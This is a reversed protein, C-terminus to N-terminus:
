LPPLVLALRPPWVSARPRPSPPWQACHEDVLMVMKESRALVAGLASIGQAQKAANEAHRYIEMDRAHVRDHMHAMHDRFAKKTLQLCVCGSAAAATVTAQFFCSSLPM